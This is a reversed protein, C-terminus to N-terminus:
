PSPITFVAAMARRSYDPRLQHETVRGGTDFMLTVTEVTPLAPIRFRGTPDSVVPGTPGAPAASVAVGDAPADPDSDFLVLGDLRVPAPPVAVSFAIPAAPVRTVTVDHGAAALAEEVPALETGPVERVVMVDTRGPRSLRLTLTVTGATALDPMDRAPVLHLAFYGGPRRALTTPFRGSGAAHAYELVATYREVLLGSVDEVVRGTALAQRLEGAAAAQLTATM